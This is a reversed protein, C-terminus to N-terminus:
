AAASYKPAFATEDKLFPPLMGLVIAETPIGMSVLTNEVLEETENCQIVIQKGVIDLHLACNHIRKNDEWGVWLVLYHLGVDDIVTITEAQDSKLGSYDQLLTKICTQYFAITTEM